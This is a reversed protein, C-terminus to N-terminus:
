IHVNHFQASPFSQRLASIFDSPDEGMSTRLIVYDNHSPIEEIAVVGLMWMADSVVEVDNRHVSVDVM